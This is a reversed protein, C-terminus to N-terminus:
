GNSAGITTDVDSTQRANKGLMGSYFARIATMDADIDASPTFPAGFGIRKQGFDLYGPVVPVGASKAIHYFGTKWQRVKERTGEPAIVLILSASQQFSRTMEGVTGNPKSRDIPIGGCWKFFPGFPWRFLDNKGMWSIKARIAFATILMMVFDWNSTHPAAILVFKPLDPLRSEVKWGFIKLLFTALGRLLGTLPPTDFVTTTM